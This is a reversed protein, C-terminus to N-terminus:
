GIITLYNIGCNIPNNALRTLISAGNAKPTVPYNNFRHWLSSRGVGLNICNYWRIKSYLIESLFGALFYAVL